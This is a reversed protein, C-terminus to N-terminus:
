LSFSEINKFPSIQNWKVCLCSSRGTCNKKQGADHSVQKSSRCSYQFSLSLPLIFAPLYKESGDSQSWFVHDLDKESPLIVRSFTSYFTTSDRTSDASVSQQWCDIWNVNHTKFRNRTMINEIHLNRLREFLDPLRTAIKWSAFIGPNICLKSCVPSLHLTTHQVTSWM